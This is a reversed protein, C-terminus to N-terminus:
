LTIEAVPSIMRRPCSSSGHQMHEIASRRRAYSVAADGAGGGLARQMLVSDLRPRTKYGVHALPRGYSFGLRSAARNVRRRRPFRRDGRDDAPLRGAGRAILAALLCARRRSRADATSMVSGRRELSLGPPSALARCLRLGCLATSSPWSILIAATPSSANGGRWKQRARRSSRLVRHRAVGCARLNRLPPLIKLSATQDICACRSM